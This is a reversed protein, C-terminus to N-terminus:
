EYKSSLNGFLTSQNAIKINVILFLQNEQYVKSQLLNVLSVKFSNLSLSHLPLLLSPSVSAFLSIPHLWIPDLITQSVTHFIIQYFKCHIHMYIACMNLLIIKINLDLVIFTNLPCIRCIERYLPGNQGMKLSKQVFISTQLIFSPHSTM